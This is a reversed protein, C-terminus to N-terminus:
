VGMGSGSQQKLWDEFGDRLILIRRGIFLSPFDPTRALAYMANKDIGVLKAAEAVTLTLKHEM